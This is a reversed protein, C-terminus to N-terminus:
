SDSAKDSLVFEVKLANDAPDGNKDLAQMETRALKPIHYEIAQLYLKAAEKPDNEAVQEVWKGFKEANCDAFSAIASRM